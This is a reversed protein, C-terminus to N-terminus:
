QSPGHWPLVQSCCKDYFTQEPCYCKRDEFAHLPQGLELMVFNTSDVVNNIPRMGLYYVMMKLWLPSQKVKAGRIVRGTYRPCGDPDDINIKVVDSALEEIETLSTDPIILRGGGLAQIERAIGYHSLCDPRNPTIEFEVVTDKYNIIKDLPTGPKIDNGLVLIGDGSDSIQLETESLIMGFSEVGRIKAKKLKLGPITSGVPAFVINQDKAVNPAGCIVQHTESGDFVQCLTLKDAGEVKEASVVKATIIGSIEDGKNEVAEAESGSLTLRNVFEDDSWKFDILTRLLNLSIKM